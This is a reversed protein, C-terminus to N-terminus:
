HAKDSYVLDIFPQVRIALTLSNDTRWGGKSLNSIRCLM